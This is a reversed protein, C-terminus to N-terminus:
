RTRSAGMRGDAWVRVQWMKAKKFPHRWSPQSVREYYGWSEIDEATFTPAGGADGIYGMGEYQEFCVTGQWDVRVTRVSGDLLRLFVGVGHTERLQRQLEGLGAPPSKLLPEMARWMARPLQVVTEAVM